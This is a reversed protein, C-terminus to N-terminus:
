LEDYLDRWGPNVSNVLDLKKQRSGGKTQKERRIANEVGELVEYYVLKTVNYKTTFGRSLKERHEYARRKPDTTVGTYLVRDSKNAMIYVYSQRNV